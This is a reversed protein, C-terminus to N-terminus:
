VFDAAGGGGGPVQQVNFMKFVFILDNAMFLMAIMVTGLFLPPLLERLLYRDLRKM